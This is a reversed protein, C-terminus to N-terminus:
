MDEVDFFVRIGRRLLRRLRRLMTHRRQRAVASAAARAARPPRVPATSRPARRARPASDRWSSTGGCASWPSHAGAVPDVRDPRSTRSTALRPGRAPATASGSRASTPTATRSRGVTRRGHHRRVQGPRRVGAIRPQLQAPVAVEHVEAPEAVGSRRSIKSTFSKSSVSGPGHSHSRLRRPALKATAARAFPRSSLSPWFATSRTANVSRPCGHGM